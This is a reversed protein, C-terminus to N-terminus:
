LIAPSKLFLFAINNAVSPAINEKIKRVSIQGSSSMYADFIYKYTNTGTSIVSYGPSYKSDLKIIDVWDTSSLTNTFKFDIQFLHITGWRQFQTNISNVTNNLITVENAIDVSIPQFSGGGSGGRALPLIGKTIKSASLDPIDADILKRWSPKTSNNGIYILGDDVHDKTSVCGSFLGHTFELYHAGNPVDIDIMDPTGPLEASLVQSSLVGDQFSLTYMNKPTYISVSDSQGKNAKQDLLEKIRELVKILGPKNLFTNM